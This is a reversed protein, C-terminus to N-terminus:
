RASAPAPAAVSSEIPASAVGVRDAPRNSAWGLVMPDDTLYVVQVSESLRELRQLLRVVAAESLGALADDFVVPVSGVIGVSRQSALRGLVYFEVEDVNVHPPAATGASAEAERAAMLKLALETVEREAVRLGELSQAEELQAQEATLQRTASVNSPRLRQTNLAKELREQERLMHDRQPRRVSLLQELDLASQALGVVQAGLDALLVEREDLAVQCRDLHHEAETLAREAAERESLMTALAVNDDPQSGGDPASPTMADIAARMADRSARTRHLHREAADVEVSLGADGVEPADGAQVAAAEADVANMLSRLEDARQAAVARDALWARAADSLSGGAPAIGADALAATLADNVEPPVRRWAQLTEVLRGGPDYGLLKVAEAHLEREKEDLLRLQEDAQNALLDALTREAAALERRAASQRLEVSPDQVATAAALLYENFSKLGFSALLETEGAQLEELRRRSGLGFRRDARREAELVAEHTQEITTRAQRDLTAGRWYRQAEALEWRCREVKERAQDVQDASVARQQRQRRGRQEIVASYRGALAVAKPDPPASESAFDAYRALAREVAAVVVPDARDLADWESQLEARRGALEGARDQGRHTQAQQQLLRLHALRSETAVVETSAAQWAEMAQSRPPVVAAASRARELRLATAGLRSEADSLAAVREDRDRTAAALAGIDRERLRTLDHHRTELLHREAVLNVRRREEDDLRNTLEAVELRLEALRELSDDASGTVASAEEASSMAARAEISKRVDTARTAGQRAQALRRRAEDLHRETRRRARSADLAPVGPLDSSRVIPHLVGDLTLRRLTPGSLDLLIGHVEVLGAVAEGLGAFIEDLRGTTADRSAADLEVIALRPHM